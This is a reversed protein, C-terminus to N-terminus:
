GVIRAAPVLFHAVIAFTRYVALRLDQEDAMRRVAASSVNWAHPRQCAPCRTAVLM